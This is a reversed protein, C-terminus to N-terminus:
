GAYPNSAYLMGEAPPLALKGIWLMEHFIGGIGGDRLGACHRPCRKDLPCRPVLAGTYRSQWAQTLSAAM